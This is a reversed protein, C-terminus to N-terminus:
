RRKGTKKHTTFYYGLKNNISPSHDLKREIAEPSWRM